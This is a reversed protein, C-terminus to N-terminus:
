KKIKKYEDYILKVSMVDEVAMGIFPFLYCYLLLLLNLRLINKV